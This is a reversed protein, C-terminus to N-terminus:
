NRVLLAVTLGRVLWVQETHYRARLLDEKPQGIKFLPDTRSEFRIVWIRPPDVADLCAALDPCEAALLHGDTRQPRVAFVDIPRRAAPVYRAVIDRAEWPEPQEHLAVVLADGPQENAAIIGGATSTAHLHGTALRIRHQTPGGLLAV